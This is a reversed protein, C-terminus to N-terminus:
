DAGDIPHAQAHRAIADVLTDYLEVPLDHGMGEIFLGEAGPIAELTDRGAEVPVLPDDEGHIVLTPVRLQCLADRRSGSAMIAVLQRGVGPPHHCRDYSRAARDRIREADFPFGPSALIKWTELAQAIAEDRSTAPPALLIKMAEPRGPPLGPDGTTSMISTLTHLREPHEIALTQAIMGGMSAGVVHARRIGLGDMLGVTDAAMDSLLYPARIPRGEGAARMAAPASDAKVHELKSSLGVDRNDFRVVWHGRGALAECFPETWGIMQSGLGIILIMPQAEPDGFCEYEIAIGNARLGPM